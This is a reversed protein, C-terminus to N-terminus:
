LGTDRGDSRHDYGGNCYLWLLASTATVDGYVNHPRRIHGGGEGGGAERRLETDVISVSYSRLRMSATPSPCIAVTWRSEIWSTSRSTRSRRARATTTDTARQRGSSLRCTARM